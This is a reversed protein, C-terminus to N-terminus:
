STLSRAQRRVLLLGILRRSSPAGTDADVAYPDLRVQAIADGVFRAIVDAPPMPHM